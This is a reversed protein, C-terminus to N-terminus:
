VSLQLYNAIMLVAGYNAAEESAYSHGAGFPVGNKYSTYGWTGGENQETEVMIELM